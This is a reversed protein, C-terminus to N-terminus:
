PSFHTMTALDNLESEETPDSQNDPDKKTPKKSLVPTKDFFVPNILQAQNLTQEALLNTENISLKLKDSIHENKEIQKKIDPITDIQLTHLKLSNRKTQNENDTITQLNTNILSENSRAKFTYVLSAIGLSITALLSLLPPTTVLSYILAPATLLPIIGSLTLILPISSVFTLALILFTANRLRQRLKTNYEFSTHLQKNNLALQENYSAMKPNVDTLSKTTNILTDLKVKQSNISFRKKNLSDQTTAVHQKHELHQHMLQIISRLAEIEPTTLKLSKLHSQLQELFIPYNIQEADKITNSLKLDLAIKQTNINNELLTQNTYSLTDLIGEGTSEYGSRAQSRADRQRQSEKRDDERSEIDQLSSSIVLRRHSLAIIKAELQFISKNLRDVSLFYEESTIQNKSKKTKPEHHHTVDIVPPSQTLRTLKARLSSCEVEYDNIQTPIDKLERILRKKTKEDEISKEKDQIKQNNDDNIQNKYARNKLNKEVNNQDTKKINSLITIIKSQVQAIPVKNILHAKLELFTLENKTLYDTIQEKILDQVNCDSLLM